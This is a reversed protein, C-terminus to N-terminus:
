FQVHFMSKAILVILLVHCFVSLHLMRSRRATFRGRLRWYQSTLFHGFVSAALAIKAWLLLAFPNGAPHALAAGHYHALGIGAGFLAVLVFPMIRQARHGIAREVARMADGPVEKHVPHLILVEFFVTGAFMLAAFLHIAVLVPYSFAEMAESEIIPTVWLM